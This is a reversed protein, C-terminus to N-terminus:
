VLKLIPLIRIVNAPIRMDEQRPLIIKVPKNLKSAALASMVAWATAQDEKGGIRRSERFM